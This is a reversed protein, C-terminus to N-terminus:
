NRVDVVFASVTGCSPCTKQRQLKIRAHGPCYFLHGCPVFVSSAWHNCGVGALDFVCKMPRYPCTGIRPWNREVEAIDSPAEAKVDDNKATGNESAGKHTCDM